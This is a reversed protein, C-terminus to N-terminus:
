TTMLGIGYPHPVSGGGGSATLTGSSLSLGSGITATTLVGDAGTVAIRDATSGLSGSSTLNGHAHSAAAFDTTASAAATGLAPRGTLDAYAGSTAVPAFAPAGTITSWAQTGTHTSRDRLQADTANATAGTAIGDLKTKAASAAWWAAIAQWVRQVTFAVRTTAVGAEADAQTVTSATWERANTLRADDTAVPVAFVLQWAKGTWVYERGNQTSKQGVSPSSPFSFPM